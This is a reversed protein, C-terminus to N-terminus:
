CKKGGENIVPLRMNKLSPTDVKADVSCIRYFGEGPLPYEELMGTGSGHPSRSLVIFAVSLIM